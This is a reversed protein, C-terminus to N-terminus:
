LANMYIETAIKEDITLPNNKLLRTVTLASKVMGPIDDMTIGFESMKFPIGINKMLSKLSEVGAMATDLDTDALDAGLALAIQAFREPASPISAQMVYPMMVAISLGHPVHFEGGLPYALAHVAATNVPGLCMGGYMSGLALRSRAEKDQGNKVATELNESIYRIGELAYMDVMPHANINIYSELCHSLADIGTFATVNPPVSLALLPDIYVRDPVLWPSIIGKKLNDHEDLLISNPSVESGTGATTPLCALFIERSQLNGIGITDYIDQNKNCLAAVIKALDMVSGGGIAAVSDISHSSAIERIREADRVIPENALDDVVIVSDCSKQLIKIQEDIVPVLPAITVILLSKFKLSLIDDVFQDICNEGFVVHRPFTFSTNKM